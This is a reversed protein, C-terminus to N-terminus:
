FSSMSPSRPVNPFGVMTLNRSLRPSQYQSSSSVDSSSSVTPFSSVAPSSSVTPFSSASRSMFPSIPINPLGTMTLNRSLTRPSTPESPLGLTSLNYNNNSSRLSPVVPPIIYDVNLPKLDKITPSRFNGLNSLAGNSSYSNLLSGQKITPLSHIPTFTNNNSVPKISAQPAPVHPSTFHRQWTPSRLLDAFEDSGVKILRDTSPSVTLSM